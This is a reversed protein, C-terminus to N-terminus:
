FSSFCFVSLFGREDRNTVSGNKGGRQRGGIGPVTATMWRRLGVNAIQGSRTRNTVDATAGNAAAIGGSQTMGLLIVNTEVRELKKPHTPAPVTTTPANFPHTLVPNTTPRPPPLSERNLVHDPAAVPLDLENTTKATQTLPTRRKNTWSTRSWNPRVIKKRRSSECINAFKKRSKRLM